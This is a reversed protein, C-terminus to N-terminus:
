VQGHGEKGMQHIMSLVRVYICDIKQIKSQFYQLWSGIKRSARKGTSLSYDSNIFFFFQTDIKNQM